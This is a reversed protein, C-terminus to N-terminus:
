DRHFCGKLLPIRHQLSLTELLLIVLIASMSALLLGVAPGFLWMVSAEAAEPGLEVTRFGMMIWAPPYALAGLGLTWGLVKKWCSKLSTFAVILLLVAALVGIGMFHIHGRLLRQMADTALSGSHSHQAGARHGAAAHGAAAEGGSHHGQAAGGAHHDAAAGDAHAHPSQMHDASGDMGMMSMDMDKMSQGAMAQHGHSPQQAEVQAEFGGHLQEHHTALYAAWLAGCVLALVAMLLGHRVQSISEVVNM